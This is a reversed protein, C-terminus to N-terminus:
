WLDLIGSGLDLLESVDTGLGHVIDIGKETDVVGTNLGSLESDSLLFCEVPQESLM